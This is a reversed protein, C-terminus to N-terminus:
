RPREEVAGGGRGLPIAQHHETQQLPVKAEAGGGRHVLTERGSAGAGVEAPDVAASYSESSIRRVGSKDVAYYVWWEVHLPSVYEAGTPQGRAVLRVAYAGPPLSTMATPALPIPAVVTGAAGKDIRPDIREERLVRGDKYVMRVVDLDAFLAPEVVLEVGRETDQFRLPLDPGIAFACFASVALVVGAWALRNAARRMGRAPARFHHVEFEMVAEETPAAWEM